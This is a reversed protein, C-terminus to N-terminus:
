SGRLSSGLRGPRGREDGVVLDAVFRLCETQELLREGLCLGAAVPKALRSCPPDQTGEVERVTVDACTALVEFGGYRDRDSFAVVGEVCVAVDRQGFEEVQAAFEVFSDFSEYCQQGVEDVCASVDFDAGVADKVGGQEVSAVVGGGPGGGRPDDLDSFDVRILVEHDLAVEIQGPDFDRGSIDVLSAEVEGGSLSRVRIRNM